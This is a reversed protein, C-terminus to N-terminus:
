CSQTWSLVLRGQAIEARVNGPLNLVQPSTCLEALRQWWQYTMDQEALHAERWVNRLVECVIFSSQNALPACDLSVTRESFKADCLELLKGADVDVLQQAEDAQSALRVLSAGIDQNFQERLLPLLEHRVRNRTFQNSFNSQDTRFPQDLGNLYSEVEARSCDLLPRVVSLTPTLPRSFPIGGLGRLGAGRLIRMLVTEVQDDQTHATALYRAGVSAAAKTLLRYRERRAAAEIGDGTPTSLEIADTELTQLPVELQHCLQECWAADATSNAGRLNHNVHVAAIQGQGGVRHKLELLGRLLAVSDAGGSLAVTVHVDEWLSAPWRCALKQVLSHSFDAM